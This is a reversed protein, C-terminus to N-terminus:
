EKFISSFSLYENRDTSEVYKKICHIRRVIENESISKLKVQLSNLEDIYNKAESESYMATKKQEVRKKCFEGFLEEHAKNFYYFEPAAQSFSSVPIVDKGQNWYNELVTTDLDKMNQNPIYMRNLVSLVSATKYEVGGIIISSGVEDNSKGRSWPAGTIGFDNRISLDLILSLTNISLAFGASPGGGRYLPNLFQHQITYNDLYGGILRYINIEKCLSQLYNQILSFAEIASHKTDTSDKVDGQINESAAGTIIIKEPNKNFILTSSIPVLGGSGGEMYAAGMVFGVQPEKSIESELFDDLIIKGSKIPNKKMLERAKIAHSITIPYDKEENINSIGKYLLDANKLLDDLSSKSNNVISDSIKLSEMIGLITNHNLTTFEKFNEHSKIERLTKITQLESNRLDNIKEAFFVFDAPTNCLKKAITYIKEYTLSIDRPIKDLVKKIIAFIDSEKLYGKVDLVSLRKSRIVAPDINRLQNTTLVTFVNYLPESGDLINLFKNTLMDEYTGRRIKAVEDGEDIFVLAPSVMKAINYAEALKEIPGNVPDKGDNLHEKKITVDSIDKNQSLYVKALFTKGSGPPGALIVGKENSSNNILCDNAMVAFDNKIDGSYDSWSLSRDMKNYCKKFVDPHTIRAVNIFADRLLVSNNFYELKLDGKIKIVSSILKRTYAPTIDIGKSDFIQSVKGAIFGYAEDKLFVDNKAAEIKIINELNKKDKWIKGMDIIKGAEDFERWIDESFEDAKRSMAIMFCNRKGTRIENFTEKITAALNEEHQSTGSDRKSTKGFFGHAEDIIAITNDSPSGIAAKWKGGMEGYWATHVDAAHIEVVNVRINDRSKLEENQKENDKAARELTEKIRKRYISNVPWRDKNKEAWALEKEKKIKEAKAPDVVELAIRALFPHEEYVDKLEEKTEEVLEIENKCLVDDVLGHVTETKGSGTPGILLVFPKKPIDPNTTYEKSIHAKFIGEFLQKLEEPVYINTTEKELVYQLYKYEEGHLDEDFIKNWAENPDWKGTIEFRKFKDSFIEKNNLYKFDQKSKDTLSINPKLSNAYNNVRNLLYNKEHFSYGKVIEDLKNKRPRSLNLKIVNRTYKTTM